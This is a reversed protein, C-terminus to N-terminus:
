PQSCAIPVEIEFNSLKGNHFLDVEMKLSWGDDGKQIVSYAVRERDLGNSKKSVAEVSSIRGPSEFSIKADVLFSDTEDSNASKLVIAVMGRTDNEQRSFVQFTGESGVMQCMLRPQYTNTRLHNLTNANATVVGLCITMLLINKM